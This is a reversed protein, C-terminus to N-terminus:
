GSEVCTLGDHTCGCRRGQLSEGTSRNWDPRRETITPTRDGDRAPTLEFIIYEDDERIRKHLLDMHARFDKYRELWWFSAEPLVLYQVGERRLGELKQIADHSDKPNFFHCSKRRSYYMGSLDGEGRACPAFAILAERPM